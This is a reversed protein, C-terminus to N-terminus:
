LVYEAANIVKTDAAGMLCSLTDKIPGGIGSKDDDAGIQGVDECIMFVADEQEESCKVMGCDRIHLRELLLDRPVDDKIKVVMCDSVDIGMPQQELMWRTIKLYPRDTLTAGKPKLIEVNGDISTLVEMLKEKREQSVRADGRVILTQLQDLCDGDAPVTVDGIVYLRDGYRRLVARDLTVDDLIVSIGDPVIIIDSKEDILDLLQEAKSKAVIVEKAAFTAGKERLQAPDLDPDTMIIRKASWYLSQKARLAFLHDIVANRKLIIAGDPYCVSSGNVSMSGLFAAMSKPYLVSGNVTIGVCQQLYPETNAGITLSGNVQLIFKKDPIRDNSTIEVQGNVTRAEVDDEVEMVNACNLTVPLNNLFAKGAANTLVAAANITINEYQAYNEELVKRTDCSACNIILKKAM